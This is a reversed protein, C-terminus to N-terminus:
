PKINTDKTNIQPKTSATVQLVTSTQAYAKNGKSAFSLGSPFTIQFFFLVNLICDYFAAPPWLIIHFNVSLRFGTLHNRLNGYDLVLLQSM